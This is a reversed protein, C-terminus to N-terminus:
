NKASLVWMLKDSTSLTECINEMPIGYDKSCVIKSVVSFLKSKSEVTQLQDFSFEDIGYYGLIYDKNEGIFNIFQDVLKDKLEEIRKSIFKKIKWDTILNNKEYDLTKIVVKLDQIIKYIEHNFGYVRQLLVTRFKSVDSVDCLVKSTKRSKSRVKSVSLVKDAFLNDFVMRMQEAEPYRFSIEGFIVQKKDEWLKISANCFPVMQTLTEKNDHEVRLIWRDKFKSFKEEWVIQEFKEVASRLMWWTHYSIQIALVDDLAWNEQLTRMDKTSRLLKKVASETTKFRVWEIEEFLKFLFERDESSSNEMLVSSFLQIIKNRFPTNWLKKPLGVVRSRFRVDDKLSNGIWQSKVLKSVSDRWNHLKVNYYFWIYYLFLYIRQYFHIKPSMFDKIFTGDNFKNYRQVDSLKMNREVEDWTKNFFSSYLEDFLKKASQASRSHLNELFELSYSNVMWVSESSIRSLMSQMYENLLIENTDAIELVSTRVVLSM